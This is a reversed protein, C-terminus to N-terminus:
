SDGRGRDIDPIRICVNEGVKARPFNADPNKLMKVGQTQLSAHAASRKNTIEQKNHCLRCTIKKEKTQKMKIGCIAHM